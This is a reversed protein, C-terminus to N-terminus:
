GSESSKEGDEGCCLVVGANTLWNGEASARESRARSARIDRSRNVIRTRTQKGGRGWSIMERAAFRDGHSGREEACSGGQAGAEAGAGCLGDGAHGARGKDAALGGKGVQWTLESGERREGFRALGLGVSASSACVVVAGELRVDGTLDHLQVM